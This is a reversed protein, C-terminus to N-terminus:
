KQDNLPNDENMAARAEPDVQNLFTAITSFRAADTAAKGGYNAMKAAIKQKGAEAAPSVAAVMARNTAYEKVGRLTPGAGGIVAGGVTGIGGTPIGITHGVVDLVSGLGAGIGAKNRIDKMAGGAADILGPNQETIARKVADWAPRAYGQVQDMGAIGENRIMDPLTGSVDM